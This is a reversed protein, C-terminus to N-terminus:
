AQMEIEVKKKELDIATIKFNRVQGTRVGEPQGAEGGGGSKWKTALMATMASLDVKGAGASAEKKQEPLAAFATVGEGLEVKARSGSVDVVRGTVVEGVKHEAIYEDISTPELAKISLRMRRRTKDAELVVAKVMEGLKLAESPHGLRKEATIDGIHIMGEIGGGMDVFAGFKALSTVPAEVTAGVPYKKAADEWPDGLAQKLGLAIRKDAVNVGLV